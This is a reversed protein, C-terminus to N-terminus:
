FESKPVAAKGLARVFAVAVAVVVVVVVAARPVHLKKMNYNPRANKM